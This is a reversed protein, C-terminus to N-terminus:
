NTGRCALQMPAISSRASEANEIVQSAAHANQRVREVLSTMIPHDPKITRMQSRYVAAYEREMAKLQHRVRQMCTAFDNRNSSAAQCQDRSQEAWRIWPAAARAAEDCSMNGPTPVKRGANVQQLSQAWGPSASMWMVVACGLASLGALSRMCAATM